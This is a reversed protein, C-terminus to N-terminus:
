RKNKHHRYAVRIANEITQNTMRALSPHTQRLWDELVRSQEALSSETEGARARKEFEAEVLHRSSPRGPSGTKDAAPLTVTAPSPKTRIASESVLLQGDRKHAGPIPVRGKTIHIIAGDTRWFRAKVEIIKGTKGDLVFANLNGSELRRHFELLAAEYRLRALREEEYEATGMGDLQPNLVWGVWPGEWGDPRAWSGGASTGPATKAWEIEKPSYLNKRARHEAGSWEAPYMERGIFDFVTQSAVYGGPVINM